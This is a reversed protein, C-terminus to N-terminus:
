EPLGGLRVTASRHVWFEGANDAVLPRLLNSYGAHRVKWSRSRDGSPTGAALPSDTEVLRLPPLTITGQATAARMVTFQLRLTVPTRPAEVECQLVYYGGEAVALTMGEYLLVPEDTPSSCDSFVFRAPSDFVAQLRYPTASAREPLTGSPATRSANKTSDAGSPTASRRSLTWPDTERVGARLPFPALLDDFARPLTDRVQFVAAGSKRAIGPPNTQLEPGAQGCVAVLAVLALPASHM